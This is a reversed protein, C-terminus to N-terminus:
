LVGLLMAIGVGLLGGGVIGALAGLILGLGLAVATQLCSREEKVPKRRGTM